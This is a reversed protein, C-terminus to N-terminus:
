AVPAPAARGIRIDGSVTELNLTVDTSAESRNTDEDLDFSMRGSISHLELRTRLGPPGAVSVDGSATEVQLSEGAANGVRVDGSATKISAADGTHEASVDGSATRARLRGAVHGLRIEGSATVVSAGGLVTGARVDGSASRIELEQAEDVTVDGSAATLETHGFRGRLQVDASAVAVRAAAGAPTLIRVDFAPTSWLRREPVAVRLTVRSDPLEPHGDSVELEIRDLLQEAAADLAEVRVDLADSGEVAELTVSGAPNRVEIRPPLGATGAQLTRVSM